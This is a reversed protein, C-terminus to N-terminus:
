NDGSIKYGKFIKKVLYKGAMEYFLVSFSIIKVWELILQKQTWEPNSVMLYSWGFAVLFITIWMLITKLNENLNKFPTKGLILFLLTCIISVWIGNMVFPLLEKLIFDM